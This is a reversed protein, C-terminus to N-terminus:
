QDCRLVCSPLHRRCDDSAHQLGGAQRATGEVGSAYRAIGTSPLALFYIIPSTALHLRRHVLPIFMDSLVADKAQMEAAHATDKARLEAAHAAHNNPDMGVQLQRILEAAKEMQAKDECVAFYGSLSQVILIEPCSTSLSLQLLMAPCQHHCHNHHVTGVFLIIMPVQKIVFTILEVVQM